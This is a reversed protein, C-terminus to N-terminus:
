TDNSTEKKQKKSLNRIIEDLKLQITDRQDKHREVLELTDIALNAEASEGYKERIKNILMINIGSM